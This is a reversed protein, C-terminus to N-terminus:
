VFISQVACYHQIGTSTMITVYSVMGMSQAALDVRMNSYLNLQVHEWKLKPLIPLSLTACDAGRHAKNLGGVLHLHQWKM